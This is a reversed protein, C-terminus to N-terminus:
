ATLCYVRYTGDEVEVGHTDHAFGPFRRDYAELAKLYGLVPGGAPGANEGPMLLPIGPPYPVVGTAVTRGALEDLTVQEVRGQVLHEYARVPSMEPTPLISFAESMLRTTGLQEMAAFMTDALDKLGMGAYRSGHENALSPIAMDLPLNADYDRKFDCLASVLSGWKGKTIGISFLFLITFDTTKEVVIGRADLYATVVSAPIGVPMLGGAPAVGPTVISVKIPDLMCYGDEINGFGHWQAGPRLVWCAPDSALLEPPAEHFPLTRGTRAELVTDPQWCEFFWDGKAGFENNMRAIMQRFAVAEEISERTLAAGGPGDMMAAAVDNSAIIAYNPSTSAHMMFTENFQGHPIPSRGDRVHIYSAQSLATLLKHTSQTAFVTPRDKHHDRPDGHMAHRDRYIPNFRAYGYWAEDFHLRDVSAGLLEEVRTVNYCLGDYTSNTVIAHKPQRDALGAALPNSAIAERIAAQTLRESAIPGIIGYRNRTPVLYTPIAGSMTMAHEASKHCNRDCLAIQDRSVSAMLIIRNSTSSGNTVHYTRHAGFVRAAYRESEGIPGSHDLLSGLEGVSISLDSRFLSEGFYEFFARGVPSKLFGTGGTHGPTHWSYEYVRSFKALAGFMPPLVTSRYREIAAHIRGGIFDATDELLWVFDDVKGMVAAPVTSAVSRDALLFIPVSGNRHRIADVVVESPGHGDVGLDWDLLVCQISPDSRILVVADDASTATLVDIGRQALEASLTRVARGTATEQAIEDDVLLARMGLRRIGGVSTNM